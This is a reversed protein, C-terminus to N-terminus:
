KKQNGACRGAQRANRRKKASIGGFGGQIEITLSGTYDLAALYGLILPQCAAVDVEVLPLGDGGCRLAQQRIKKPIRTLTSHVRGHYDQTFGCDGDNVENFLEMWISAERIAKKRRPHAKREEPTAAKTVKVVEGHTFDVKVGKAAEVLTRVIDPQEQAREEREARAKNALLDDQIPFRVLPKDAWEPGLTYGKSIRGIEYRGDTTLVGSGLIHRRGAYYKPLGGCREGM